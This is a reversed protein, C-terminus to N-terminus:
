HCHPTSSSFQSPCSGCLAVVVASDGRTVKIYEPMGYTDCTALFDLQQKFVEQKKKDQAERTKADTFAKLRDLVGFSAASVHLGRASSTGMSLAGM